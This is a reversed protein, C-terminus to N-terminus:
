VVHGNTVVWGDPHIISGSGIWTLPDPRVARPMGEGCRITATAGVEVGVMVVAPKARFVASQLEAETAAGAPGGPMAAVALVGMVGTYVSVRMRM